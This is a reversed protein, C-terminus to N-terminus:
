NKKVQLNSFELYFITWALLNEQKTLTYPNLEILDNNFCIHCNIIVFKICLSLLNWIIFTM